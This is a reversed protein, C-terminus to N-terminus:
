PDRRREKSCSYACLWAWVSIYLSMAGLFTPDSNEGNFARNMDISLKQSPKILICRHPIHAGSFGYFVCVGCQNPKAPKERRLSSLFSPERAREATSDCACTQMGIQKIYQLHLALSLHTIRQPIDCIDINLKTKSM